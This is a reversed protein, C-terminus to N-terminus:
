FEALAIVINMIEGCEYKKTKFNFTASNYKIKYKVQGAKGRIVHQMYM